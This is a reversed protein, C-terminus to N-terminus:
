IEYIESYRKRKGSMIKEVKDLKKKKKVFDCEIKRYFIRVITKMKITLYVFNRDISGGAKKLHKKDIERALVYSEPCM